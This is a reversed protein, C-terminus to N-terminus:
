DGLIAIIWGKSIDELWVGFDKNTRATSVQRRGQVVARLGTCTLFFPCKGRQIKFLSVCNYASNLIAM